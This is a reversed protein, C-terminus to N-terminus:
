VKKLKDDAFSFYEGSGVVIHDVFAISPCATAMASKIKATLEVDSPSPKADGSPHNHAVVVGHCGSAIVVRLIDEVVVVVRDRQGRAIETFTRPVRHLDICLVVFIEQDQRNLYPALFRFADLDSEIPGSGKCAQYAKEDRVLATFPVCVGASDRAESAERAMHELQAFYRGNSSFVAHRSGDILRTGLYKGAKADEEDIIVHEWAEDSSARWQKGTYEFAYGSHLRRSTEAAAVAVVAVEPARKAAPEGPPCAAATEAPCPCEAVCPVDKAKGCHTHWVVSAATEPSIGARYTGELYVGSEHVLAGSNTAGMRDLLDRVDKRYKAERRDTRPDEYAVTATKKPM